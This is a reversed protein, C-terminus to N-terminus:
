SRPVETSASGLPASNRILPTGRCIQIKHALYGQLHPVESMLILLPVESTFIWLPVESTFNWLPVESVLIWMSLIWLPVESM